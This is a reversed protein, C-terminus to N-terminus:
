PLFIYNNKSKFNTLRSTDLLDSKSCFYSKYGLNNIFSITDEVKEKSHREEIEILLNPKYKKILNKSGNLVNKEHGEVDIKIFGIKHDILIDDLKATKVKYTIFEENSLM